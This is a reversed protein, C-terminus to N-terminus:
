EVAANNELSIKTKFINLKLQESVSFLSVAELSKNEMSRSGVSILRLVFFFQEYGIEPM